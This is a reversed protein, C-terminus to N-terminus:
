TWSPNYEEENGQYEYKITIANVPVRYLREGDIIFEYESSPHFGVLSGQTINEDGHKVIGKLPEEVSTSFMDMSKIPKVFYFGDVPMWVSNSKYAFIQDPQAFFLDETFYSKSNKEAGRVDYFRRFVNHHIIVEDGAKIPTSGMKPVSVVIGNRSVYQHNQLETNLILEKGDIIKKSTTREKKPSVLFDFVGQM